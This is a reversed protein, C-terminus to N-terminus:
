EIKPYNDKNQISAGFITNLYYNSWTSFPKYEVVQGKRAPIFGMATLSLFNTAM